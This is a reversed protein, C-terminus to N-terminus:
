NGVILKCIYDMNDNTYRQDITLPILYKSLVFEFDEKNTEKLIYSWWRGQFHKHKQLRDILADDNILFPYIMPVVTEDVNNMDLLNKSNLKECLYHFNQLRKQKAEEYDISDLIIRTLKSMKKVDEVDIREDNEIKSKYAKGECGYEIRQLLYLSTDSSYCQEYEEVFLHANKGVVYAGDPVGFFKRCSYVNLCNPLPKAYFSQSDDIIVNKYRDALNNMRSFSMIGFYNVLLVADAKEQEIDIPNFASDIHYYMIQIGKRKLFNRVTECQYIPLWIRKCGTVRFAHYIAARGSNLRAIDKEGRFHEKGKEFQLEIFSGIEM